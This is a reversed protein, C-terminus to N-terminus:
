ICLTSVKQAATNCCFVTLFENSGGGVLYGLVLTMYSAFDVSVRIVVTMVIDENIM